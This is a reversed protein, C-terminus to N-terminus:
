ESKIYQAQDESEPWAHDETELRAQDEAESRAQDERRITRPYGEVIYIGAHASLLSPINSTKSLQKFIKPRRSLVLSSFSIYTACAPGKNGTIRSM